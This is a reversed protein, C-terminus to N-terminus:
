AAEPIGNQGSTTVTEAFLANILPDLLNMNVYGLDIIRNCSTSENLKNQKLFFSQLHGISLLYRFWSSRDGSLVTRASIISGNRLQGYRSLPQLDRM